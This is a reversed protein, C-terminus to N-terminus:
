VEWTSFRGYDPWRLHLAQSPSSRELLLGSKSSRYSTPSEHPDEVTLAVGLLEVTRRSRVDGPNTPSKLRTSRWVFAPWEVLLHARELNGDAAVATTTQSELTGSGIARRKVAVSVDRMGGSLRRNSFDVM